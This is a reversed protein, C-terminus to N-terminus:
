PHLGRSAALEVARVIADYGTCRCYNGALAEEIEARGPSSNETLLARTSLVMGPTCYGCQAADCEVFSQQVVDLQEGDALGEVTQVGHGEAAIGLVLCSNVALGDLLVTCAGCEGQECNFKTGTLGLDERLVMLLTKDSPTQVRHTSGNVSVTYTVDDTM